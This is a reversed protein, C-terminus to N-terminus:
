LAASSWSSRSRNRASATLKANNKGASMPIRREIGARIKAADEAPIAGARGMAEAAFVEIALHGSAVRVPAIPTVGIQKDNVAIGALEPDDIEDGAEGIARTTLPEVEPPPAVVKSSRYTALPYQPEWGQLVM